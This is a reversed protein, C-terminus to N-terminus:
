QARLKKDRQHNVWANIVLTITLIGFVVGLSIAIPIHYFDVILMKIGIFVLIVALGYKLMSFREAVGSLLFYMARLGLIAFLNSTLVIFPDPTVAFIAPISDVAFIVDSFEVMILVLLLPTAYLLGNKRVFFHENEITDTMRLHGRLWRVMPKEGIGSEDEKALAMKVGTFLLFAGFVYLLWEFQTILWTGAFIMITRLVIAGLVGYVLVRRQLAPPVSFYSFLMLWVFVNDVALSKEILYGTLFALAQPDAVERGQTEALYWWFAANFLLSLTVWLISWGAAQKMSMAHAGRRGQLLLDISLMIVVVVAFGGWLLPTGVTNM